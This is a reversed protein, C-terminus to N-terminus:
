LRIAEDCYGEDWKRFGRCYGYDDSPEKNWRRCDRCRILENKRTLNWHENGDTTYEMIVERTYVGTPEKIDM